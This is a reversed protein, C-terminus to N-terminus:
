RQRVKVFTSCKAVKNRGSSMVYILIGSKFIPHGNGGFFTVKSWHPRKKSCFFGRPHRVVFHLAAQFCESGKTTNLNRVFLQFVNMMVVAATPFRNCIRVFFLRFGLSTNCIKKSFVKNNTFFILHSPTVISTLCACCFNELMNPPSDQYIWSM